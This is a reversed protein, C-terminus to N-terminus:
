LAAPLLDTNGKDQLPQCAQCHGLAPWLQRQAEERPGVGRLFHNVIHPWQNFLSVHVSVYDGDM